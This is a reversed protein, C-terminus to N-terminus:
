SWEILSRYFLIIKKHIFILLFDIFLRRSIEMGHLKILPHLIYIEKFGSLIKFARAQKKLKTIAIIYARFFSEKSRDVSKRVM